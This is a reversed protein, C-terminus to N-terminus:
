QRKCAYAIALPSYNRRRKFEAELEQELASLSAQLKAEKAKSVVSPTQVYAHFSLSADHM